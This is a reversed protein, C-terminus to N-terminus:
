SSAPVDSRVSEVKTRAGQIKAYERDVVRMSDELGKIRQQLKHLEWRRLQVGIPHWVSRELEDRSKSYLFDCLQDAQSLIGNLEMIVPVIEDLRATKEDILGDHVAQRRRDVEDAIWLMFPSMTKYTASMQRSAVYVRVHAHPVGAVMSAAKVSALAINLETMDVIQQSDETFAKITRLYEKDAAAVEKLVAARTTRRDRLHTIYQTLGAGIIAGVTTYLFVGFAGLSMFDGIGSM